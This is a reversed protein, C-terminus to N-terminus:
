RVELKVIVLGLDHSEVEVTGPRDITLTLETTGADYALEQAPTSHVHLAGATDATVALTIPEGVGAQVVEGNPTASGGTISIEIRTGAPAPSENATESPTPTASHTAHPSGTPGAAPSDDGCGGLVLVAMTM